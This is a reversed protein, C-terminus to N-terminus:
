LRHSFCLLRSIDIYWSHRHTESDSLQRCVTWHVIEAMQLAM